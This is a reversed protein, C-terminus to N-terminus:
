DRYRLRCVCRHLEQYYGWVVPPGSSVIYQGNSRYILYLGGTSIDAITSDVDTYQTELNKLPVYKDFPIDLSSYTIDATQSDTYGSGPHAVTWDALVRFRKTYELAIGTDISPTSDTGTADTSQFINQFGPQVGSPTRDYVIIMRVTPFLNYGSENIYRVAGRVRISEMWINRGIRQFSGTGEKIGNLLIVGESPLGLISPITEEVFKDVGKLEVPRVVRVPEKHPHRNVALDLAVADLYERKRKNVYDSYHDREISAMQFSSTGPISTGKVVEPKM